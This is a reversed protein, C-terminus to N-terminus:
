DEPHVPLIRQGNSTVRPHGQHKWLRHYRGGVASEEACVFSALQTDDVRRGVAGEDVPRTKRLVLRLDQLRSSEDAEDESSQTACGETACGEPGLNIRHARTLPRPVDAVKAARRCLLAALEVGGLVRTIIAGEARPCVRPVGCFAFGGRGSILMIIQFRVSISVRGACTLRSAAALLAFPVVTTPPPAPAHLWLVCCGAAGSGAPVTHALWQQLLPWRPSRRALVALRCRRSPRVAGAAGSGALLAALM